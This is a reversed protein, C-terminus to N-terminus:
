RIKLRVGDLMLDPWEPVALEIHNGNVAEAWQAVTKDLSLTGRKSWSLSADRQYVTAQTTSGSERLLVAETQGDRDLDVLWLGCAKAQTLCTREDWDAEPRTLWAVLSEEPVAGQPMLQVRERLAAAAAIQNQAKWCGRGCGKGKLTEDARKVLQQTADDKGELAALTKLAADGYTGGERKLFELDFDESSIEGAEWRAMQDNVALRRVDAVPSILATVVIVKFLAGAINVAPISRMWIAPWRISFAYGWAHVSVWLAVVAAWIRDPTWGHQAIRQGLAWSALVALVPLALWAWSLAHRLWRPYAPAQAGDQFAANAFVISLTGFWLLYFAANRTKFLPEVGTFFLAVVWLVAFALTLPLFWTNLSLWFRRLVTLTDSYTLALGMALGFVTATIPIAFWLERLLQTLWKLGISDMLWAGAWLLVWFVGTLAGALPILLANRWAFAFLRAYVWRKQVADFGMILAILAFGVCGTALVYAGLEQDFFKGGVTFGVHAGLGACFCGLALAWLIRVRRDRIGEHLLYWSLPTAVVAYLTASWLPTSTAPWISRKMTEVLAWLALGQALGLLLYLWVHPPRDDEGDLAPSHAITM